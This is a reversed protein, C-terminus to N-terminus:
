KLQLSDPVPKQKGEGPTQAEVRMAILQNLGLGARSMSRVPQSPVAGAM